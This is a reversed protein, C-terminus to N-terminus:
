SNQAERSHWSFCKGSSLRSFLSKLVRSLLWVQAQSFGTGSVDIGQHKVRSTKFLLM